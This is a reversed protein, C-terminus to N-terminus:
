DRRSSARAEAFIRYFSIYIGLGVMIFLAALTFRHWWFFCGLCFGLVALVLVKSVLSAATAFVYYLALATVTALVIYGYPM